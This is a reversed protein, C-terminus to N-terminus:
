KLLYQKLLEFLTPDGVFLVIMLVWFWISSILTIVVIAVLAFLFGVIYLLAEIFNM